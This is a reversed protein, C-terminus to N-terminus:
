LGSEPAEFMLEHRAHWAPLAFATGPLLLAETHTSQRGPLKVSDSPRGVQVRQPAPVCWGDLPANPHKSHADPENQEVPAASGSGHGAPVKELEVLRLAAASHVLQVTPCLQPVFLSCGDGHAAPVYALVVLWDWHM